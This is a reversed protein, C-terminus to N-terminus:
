NYVVLLLNTIVSFYISESTAKTTYHDDALHPLVIYTPDIGTWSM